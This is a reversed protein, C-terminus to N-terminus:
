QLKTTKSALSLAFSRMGMGFLGSGGKWLGLFFGGIAGILLNDIIMLIVFAMLGLIAKIIYFILKFIWGILKGIGRFLAGM